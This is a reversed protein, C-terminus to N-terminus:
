DVAIRCLDLIQALGLTVQRVVDVVRHCIEVFRRPRRLQEALIRLRPVHVQFLSCGIATWAQQTCKHLRRLHLVVVVNVILEQPVQELGAPTTSASILSPRTRWSRPRETICIKARTSLTKLNESIM